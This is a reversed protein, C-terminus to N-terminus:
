LRELLRRKYIYSNLGPEKSLEKSFYQAARLWNVRDIDITSYLTVDLCKNVNDVTASIHKFNKRHLRNFSIETNNIAPILIAPNFLNSLFYAKFKYYFM